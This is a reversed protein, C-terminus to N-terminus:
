PTAKDKESELEMRLPDNKKKKEDGWETQTKEEDPEDAGNGLLVAGRGMMRENSEKSLGAKRKVPKKKRSKKGRATTKREREKKNATEPTRDQLRDSDKEAIISDGKEGTKQCNGGAVEESAMGLVAIWSKVRGDL